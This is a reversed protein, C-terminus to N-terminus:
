SGANPNYDPDLECSEIYYDFLADDSEPIEITVPDWGKVTIELIGGDRAARFITATSQFKRAMFLRSNSMSVWDETVPEADDVRWTLPWDRPRRVGERLAKELDVPRVALLVYLRGKECRFAIGPRDPDVTHLLLTEMERTVPMSYASTANKARLKLQLDSMEWYGDEAPEDAMSAGALMLALGCLLLRSGALPRCTTKTATM